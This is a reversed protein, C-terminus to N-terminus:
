AGQLSRVEIAGKAQAVIARAACNSAAATTFYPIKDFLAVKRIEKSDAVAQANTTTNMVLAVDGNKLRDVINPRGEYVKNVAECSIGQDNLWKATGCTALIDFGQAALMQAAEIMLPGKDEDKLSIFVTGSSPLVM